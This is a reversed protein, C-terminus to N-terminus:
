RSREILVGVNKAGTLIEGKNLKLRVKKVNFNNLILQCVEEALSEVLKFKTSKVYKTINECVEQYDIADDINDDKGINYEQYHMEIDFVLDQRIKREWDHVGIIADVKLSEIFVINM